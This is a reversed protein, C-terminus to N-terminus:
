LINSLSNPMHLIWKDHPSEGREFAEKKLRQSPAELCVHHNCSFTYMLLLLIQREMLNGQLKTRLFCQQPTTSSSWKHASIRTQALSGPSLRLMILDARVRWNDLSSFSLRTADTCGTQELWVLCLQPGVREGRLIVGNHVDAFIRATM